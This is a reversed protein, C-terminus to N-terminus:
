NRLVVVLSDAACAHQGGRLRLMSCFRSWVSLRVCARGSWDCRLERQDRRWNASDLAYTRSPPPVTGRDKEDDLPFFIQICGDWVDVRCRLSVIKLSFLQPNECSLTPEPSTLVVFKVIEHKCLMSERHQRCPAAPGAM